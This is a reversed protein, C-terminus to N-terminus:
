LVNCPAPKLKHKILSHASGLHLPTGIQRAYNETPNSVSGGVLQTFKWLSGM